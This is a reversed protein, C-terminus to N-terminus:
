PNALCDWGSRALPSRPRSSSRSRTSVLFFTPSSMSLLSSCAQEDYSLYDALVFPTKETEKGISQFERNDKCFDADQTKGDRLIYADYAGMFYLPRKEILRIIFTPIDMGQYIIKEIKTGNSRKYDLFKGYFSVVDPHILPYTNKAHEVIKQQKNHDNGAITQITNKTTPIKCINKEFENSKNVLANFEPVDNTSLLNKTTGLIIMITFFYFNIKSSSRCM